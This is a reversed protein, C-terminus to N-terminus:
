VAGQLAGTVAHASSRREFNMASNVTIVPWWHWGVSALLKQLIFCITVCSFRGPKKIELYILVGGIWCLQCFTGNRNGRKEFDPSLRKITITAYSRLPPKMKWITDYKTILLKRHLNARDFDQRKYWYKAFIKEMNLHKGSIYEEYTECFDTM